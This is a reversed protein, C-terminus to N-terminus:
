PIVFSIPQHQYTIVTDLLSDQYTAYSTTLSDVYNDRWKLNEYCMALFGPIFGETEVSLPANLM